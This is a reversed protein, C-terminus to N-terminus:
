DTILGDDTTYLLKNHGFSRGNFEILRDNWSFRMIFDAYYGNGSDEISVKYGNDEFEKVLKICEELLLDKTFSLGKKLYISYYTAGKNAEEECREIIHERVGDLIGAVIEPAKMKSIKYLEQAPKIEKNNLIIEDHNAIDFITENEVGM